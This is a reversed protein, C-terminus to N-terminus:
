GHKNWQLPSRQLHEQKGFYSQNSQLLTPQESPQSMWARPSCSEDDLRSSFVTLFFFLSLNEPLIFRNNTCIWMQARMEQAKAGGLTTGPLGLDGLHWRSRGGKPFMQVMNQIKVIERLPSEVIIRYHMTSIIQCRRECTFVNESIVSRRFHDFIDSHRSCLYTLSPFLSYNNKKADVDVLM